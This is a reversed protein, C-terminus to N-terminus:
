IVSNGTWKLGFYLGNLSFNAYRPNRQTTSLSQLYLTSNFYNVWMWGIDASLAGHNMEYAYKTGLKIDIEPVLGTNSIHNYSLPVSSTTRSTNFSQNGVPLGVGGISYISWCPQLLYNLDLGIRPGFGNFSLAQNVIRSSDNEMNQFVYKSLAIRTYEVGAFLRAKSRDNFNLSQGFEINVWNWNPSVSSNGSSSVSSDSGAVYQRGDQYNNQHGYHTWNLKVDNSQNFLYSAELDFGWSWNPSYVVYDRNSPYDQVYNGSYSYADFLAELYLAHGGIQWQNCPHTMGMTGAYLSFSSFVLVSSLVKTLM